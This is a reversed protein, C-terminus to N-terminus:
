GIFGILYTIICIPREKEVAREKLSTPKRALKATSHGRHKNHMLPTFLYFAISFASGFAFLDIM